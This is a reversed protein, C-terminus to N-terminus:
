EAGRQAEMDADMDGNAFMEHIEQEVIEVVKGSAENGHEDEVSLENFKGIELWSRTGIERDGESNRIITFDAEVSYLRDKVEIEGQWNM